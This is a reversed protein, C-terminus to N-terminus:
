KKDNLSKGDLWSVKTLDSLDRDLSVLDNHDLDNIDNKGVFRTFNSIEASSVSIFNSLKRVGEEVGLQKELGLNQTTVGMPCFGTHCIRYQECNIAILAATGIYVADSGLALCKAFDASSRLGGGAILSIKNKVGVDKLFKYARPLGALIPIGVNDRVYSNTAGTGGGFGDLTIFDVGAEVLIKVDKEINGCGIKAGVPVGGTIDKLYSVKKKLDIKSNIDPHRAPSNSNRGIELGRAKAIEDTIKESPLFSGKGPYAGQGFRIEIAAAKKLIEDSIGFRATSYQVIIQGSAIETEEDLVGGEGSNFAIKSKTAVKAIVLKVNKSVAGFSLASIMIPSSVAFPKRAREGIRVKLNVDEEKNLPLRSVQAPVFHLDDFSFPLKKKSGMSRIVSKGSESIEKIDVVKKYFEITEAKKKKRM